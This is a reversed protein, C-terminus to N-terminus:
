AIGDAVHCNVTDPLHFYRRAIDFSLKHPDVVTVNVNTRALM